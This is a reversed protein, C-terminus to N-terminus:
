KSSSSSRRRSRSSSRSSSSSSSSGISSNQGSRSGGGRRRRRRFGLSRSRCRSLPATTSAKATLDSDKSEPERLLSQIGVTQNQASLVIQKVIFLVPDYQPGDAKCPM